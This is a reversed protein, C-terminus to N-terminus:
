YYESNKFSRGSELGGSTRRDRNLKKTILVGLETEEPKNLRYLCFRKNVLTTLNAPLSDGFDVPISSCSLVSGEDRESNEETVNSRDRKREEESLSTMEDDERVPINDKAAWSVEVSTVNSDKEDGDDDKVENGTESKASDIQTETEGIVLSKLKEEDTKNNYDNLCNVENNDAKINNNNNNEQSM